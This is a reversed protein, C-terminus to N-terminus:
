VAWPNLDKREEVLHDSEVTPTGLPQKRVDDTRTEPLPNQRAGNPGECELERWQSWPALRPPHYAVEAKPGAAHRSHQKGHWRPDPLMDRPDVTEKM